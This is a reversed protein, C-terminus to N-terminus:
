LNAHFALVKSAINFDARVILTYVYTMVTISGTGGCLELHLYYPYVIM